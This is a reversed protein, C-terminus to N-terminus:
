IYMEYLRMNEKQDNHYLFYLKGGSVRIKKVFSHEPIEVTRLVEGSELDVEKLFYLSRKKFLAYVRDTKDDVIVKGTHFKQEPYDVETTKVKVADKNYHEIRNHVYDFVLIQDGCKKLPAKIPRFRTRRDTWDVYQMRRLFELGFMKLEPWMGAGYPRPRAYYAYDYEKEFNAIRVSDAVDCLKRFSNPSQKYIYVNRLIMDHYDPWQFYIQDGLETVCNKIYPLISDPKMPNYLFLEKDEERVLWCTEKGFLYIEGVCDKLLYSEKLGSVGKSTLVKGQQDVLVLSPTKQGNRGNKPLLLLINNEIFTYDKVWLREKEYVPTIKKDSLTTEILMEVRVKMGIVIPQEKKVDSSKGKWYTDEYAVHTFGLYVTGSDVKLSFYGETNSSTQWTKNNYSIHVDAIGEGSPNVLRGTFEIHQAALKLTFFLWLTFISYIKNRMM